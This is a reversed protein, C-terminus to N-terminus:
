VGIRSPLVSATPVSNVVSTRSAMRRLGSSPCVSGVTLGSTSSHLSPQSFSIWASAMVSAIACSANCVAEASKARPLTPAPRPILQKLRFPPMPVAERTIGESLAVSPTSTSALKPASSANVSSPTRAPSIIAGSSAPSVGCSSAPETMMMM